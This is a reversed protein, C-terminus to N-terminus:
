ANNNRRHEDEVTLSPAGRPLVVYSYWPRVSWPMVGVVGIIPQDHMWFGISPWGQICIMYDQM